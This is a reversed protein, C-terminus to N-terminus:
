GHQEAYRKKDERHHVQDRAIRHGDHEALAGRCRVRRGQPVLQPQVLGKRLLVRLEQRAGHATIKSGGDAAAPRHRVLDRVPRALPKCSRTTSQRWTRRLLRMGTMAITPRCNPPSRAPETMTSLTKARGPM